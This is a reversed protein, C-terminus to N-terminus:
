LKGLRSNNRAAISDSNPFSLMRVSAEKERETDSIFASLEYLHCHLLRRTRQSALGPSSHGEFPRCSTKGLCSLLRPWFSLRGTLVKKSSHMAFSAPRSCSRMM